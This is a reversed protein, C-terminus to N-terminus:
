RAAGRCQGHSGQYLDCGGSCQMFFIPVGGTCRYLVADDQGLIGLSLGCYLEGEVCPDFPEMVVLTTVDFGQQVVTTDGGAGLVQGGLKGAAILSVHILPSDPLDLRLAVTLPLRMPTGATGITTNGHRGEYVVDLELQDISRIGVAEIELTACTAGSACADPHACAALSGACAAGAILACLRVTM